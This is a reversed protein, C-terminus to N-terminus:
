SSQKNTTASTLAVDRNLVRKWGSSQTETRVRVQEECVSCAESRL